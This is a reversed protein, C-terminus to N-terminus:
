IEYGGQSLYVLFCKCDYEEFHILCILHFRIIKKNLHECLLYDAM